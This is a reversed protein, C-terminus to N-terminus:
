FGVVCVLVFFLFDFTPTTAFTQWISPNISPERTCYLLSLRVVMIAFFITVLSYDDSINKTHVLGYSAPHRPFCLFVVDCFVDCRDIESHPTESLYIVVAVGVCACGCLCVIGIVAASSFSVVCM